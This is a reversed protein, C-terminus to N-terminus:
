RKNSCLEQEEFGEDQSFSTRLVHEFTFLYVAYENIQEVKVHM